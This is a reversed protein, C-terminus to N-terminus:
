AIMRELEDLSARDRDVLELILAFSVVARRQADTLDRGNLAASVRERREISFKPDEMLTHYSAEDLAPFHIDPHDLITRAIDLETIGTNLVRETIPSTSLDTLHPIHPVEGIM